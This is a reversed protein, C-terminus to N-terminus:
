QGVPFMLLSYFMQGKASGDQYSGIIKIIHPHHLSKMTAAEQKVTELRKKRLNHPLLARKRVFHHFKQPSDPVCVEQVFGMSGQGLFNVVTFLDQQVTTYELHDTTWGCEMAILDSKALMSNLKKPKSKPFSVETGCQGPEHRPSESDENGSFAPNLDISNPMAFHGLTEKLVDPTIEARVSDKTAASQRPSPEQGILGGGDQM